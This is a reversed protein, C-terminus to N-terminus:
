VSFCDIQIMEIDTKKFRSIELKVEPISGGLSMFAHFVHKM